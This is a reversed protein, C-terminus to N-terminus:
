WEYICKNFHKEGSKQMYMLSMQFLNECAQYHGYLGFAVFFECVNWFNKKNDNCTVNPGDPVLPQVCRFKAYAREKEKKKAKKFCNMAWLNWNFKPKLAVFVTNPNQWEDLSYLIFQPDISFYTFSDLTHSWKSMRLNFFFFLRLPRFM